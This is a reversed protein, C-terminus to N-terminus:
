PKTLPILELNLLAVAAPLLKPRAARFAAFFANEGYYKKEETWEQFAKIGKSSVKLVEDIMKSTAQSAPVISNKAGIALGEGM